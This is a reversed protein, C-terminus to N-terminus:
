QEIVAQIEKMQALFRAVDDRIQEPPADFESEIQVCIGEQQMGQGLLEWVRAGVENLAYVAGLDAVQRQIPVLLYEDAIKRAVMNPNQKLM